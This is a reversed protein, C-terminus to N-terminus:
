SRLVARNEIALDLLGEVFMQVRSEPTTGETEQRWSETYAGVLQSFPAIIAVDYLEAKSGFHSFVLRESVGATQAIEKTTAADYGRELFRERAAERILSRIEASSRRQRVPSSMSRMM